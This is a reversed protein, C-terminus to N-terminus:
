LIFGWLSARGWICKEIIIKAEPNENIELRALDEQFSLEKMMSYRLKDGVDAALAKRLREAEEKNEPDFLFCNVWHKAKEKLEQENM